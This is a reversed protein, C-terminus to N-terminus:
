VPLVAVIRMDHPNVIVVEDEYVFYLLGRWGPEIQALYEPVPVVHIGGRPIVTGVRVDFDVHGVRPAGRADIITQQIRTRQQDSLRVNAGQAGQAPGQAREGQMPQSANGQLGRLTRENREQANTQRGHQRERENGAVGNNNTNNGTQAQRHNAPMGANANSHQQPAPNPNQASQGAKGHNQMGPAVANRAMGPNASQAANPGGPGHAQMGPGNGNMPQAAHTQNGQAAGNPAQACALGTGAGLALAAVGALLTNQYGKM